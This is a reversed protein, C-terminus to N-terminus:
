PTHGAPREAGPSAQLCSFARCFGAHMLRNDKVMRRGAHAQVLM